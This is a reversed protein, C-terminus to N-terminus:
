INNVQAHIEISEGKDSGEDNTQGDMDSLNFNDKSNEEDGSICELDHKM